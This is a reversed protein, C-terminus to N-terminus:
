EGTSGYAGQGRETTSLQETEILTIQPYPIIVLQGIRDGAKYVNSNVMDDNVNFIFTVDGRFSSDLVGVSNSLSLTKNAVSSRPFLLGVYGKPIEIAIGTKYIVQSVGTSLKRREFSVATMDLGADGDKAYSPITAEPNLKKFNVIM